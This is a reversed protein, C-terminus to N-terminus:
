CRQLIWDCVDRVAGRGGPNPTVWDAAERAQRRADAVAVGMGAAELLPVDTVDDGVCIVEEWRYGLREVLTCAEAYKDTCGLIAEEIGLEQLRQRTAESERASIVAIRVGVDHLLVLGQGDHVHFCKTEAGDESLYLRGDTLVGDVDLILLKVDEPSM